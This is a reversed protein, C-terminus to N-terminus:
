WLSVRWTPASQRERRRSRMRSHLDARKDALWDDRSVDTPKGKSERLKSEASRFDSFERYASIEAELNETVLEVMIADDLFGIGPVKDPILDEPNAFYCMASLVKETEEQPLQWEKDDVMEALVRLTGLRESIFVPLNSQASVEFLDIASQIIQDRGLGSDKVASQAKQALNVFHEVDQDSLEFNINVAM